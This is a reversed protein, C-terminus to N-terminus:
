VGGGRERRKNVCNLTMGREAQVMENEIGILWNKLLTVEM